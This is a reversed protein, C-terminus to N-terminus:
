ATESVENLLKPDEQNDLMFDQYEQESMGLYERLTIKSESRHWQEVLQEIDNLM